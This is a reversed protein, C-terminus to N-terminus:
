PKRQTARSRVQDLWRGWGPSRDSLEWAAQARDLAAARDGLAWALDSWCRLGLASPRLRAHAALLAEAHSWDKAQMLRRALAVSMAPSQAMLEGHARALAQAAPLPLDHVADAMWRERAGAEPQAWANLAQTWGATGRDLRGRELDVRGQLAGYWGDQGLTGAVAALNAEAKDWRRFRLWFRARRLALDPRIQM